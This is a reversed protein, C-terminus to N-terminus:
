RDRRDGHLAPDFGGAAPHGPDAAPRRAPRGRGAVALEGGTGYRRAPDKVLIADILARVHEPVVDPLPPPPERVQMMAVAVASEARFPRHGALCEYGVIGLSYVDGAPGAEAGSAQEPAIYHATGMVMGSRTVPVADAAKAIGFDTLKVKGDVRILINGAQRRPARLRARARGAAGTRGAGHDAVDARAGAPRPRDAVVAARRAGAGDGPLRHARWRAARRGRRLRAGRRHRLPRALRRHPGRGPVPAPVGPRGVARAAAGERRRQPGAPHGRGGVGRGDRRRRHAPRAPLRIRAPHLVDCRARLDARAPRPGRRHAREHGGAAGRRHGRARDARGPVRRDGGALPRRREGGAGRRRDAPRRRARLRRVLRAAAHGEPGRRARRHRDEGRDARRHDERRGAHPEGRRDHPRDADERRGRADGPRAPGAPDRRARGADPQAGAPRPLAGHGPRRERDGRRDDREAAAHVARRAARDRVAAALRHGPHRRAHLTRGDDPDRAAGHRRRVGRGARPDQRRRAPRGARRLRHQVLPGARRAALGDARAARPAPSTRWRQTATDQLTIESAATLQSDPTFGNQLAAATDILKFTSGPPYTESIARNPLVPPDADNFKTWAATQDESNHSALKNPDYTPTSAM